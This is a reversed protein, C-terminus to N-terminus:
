HISDDVPARVVELDDVRLALTLADESNEKTKDEEHERVPRILFKAGCKSEEDGAHTHSDTRM